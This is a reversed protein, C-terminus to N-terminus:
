PAGALRDIALQTIDMRDSFLIIINSTSNLILDYGLDAQIGEIVPAIEARIRNQGDAQLATAEEQKDQQYRQFDTLADQYERELLRREDISLSDAAGIREEIAQVATQRTQLEATVAAQFDTLQQRLAQGAPSQLAVADVNIVGIKLPADEAEAAQAALTAPAWAITAVALALLLRVSGSGALAPSEALNAYRAM